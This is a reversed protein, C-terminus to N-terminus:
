SPTANKLRIRFSPFPLASQGTEELIAEDIRILGRGCVIIPKQDRVFIVKGSTRNEVFVDDLATVRVLRIAKDHLWTRAGEYPYGVANVFREIRPADWDWWVEYDSDDRWLSYTAQAEEQTRRPLSRDRRLLNMIEIVIDSYVESVMDIARSITLPYEVAISKQAIIDGRDYEAAAFLATVGLEKEGNILASVLPAFGRYKPLLSDHLIILPPTSPLMWRWGIAFTYDAEMGSFAARPFWPIGYSLCRERIAEFRDDKIGSDQAGVVAAIHGHFDHRILADLVHHGKPNMLYLIARM